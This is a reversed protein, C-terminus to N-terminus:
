TLSLPHKAEPFNKTLAEITTGASWWPLEYMAKGGSFKEISKQATNIPTETDLLGEKYLKNMFTLYEKMEPLEARHVLKGDVEKWDTFVGFTAAINGYIAPAKNSVTLPIVNKKEKITKLVNYLEDTNTPTSLGLEDMWDQRVM